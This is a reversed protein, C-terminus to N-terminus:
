KQLIYIVTFVVVALGGAWYTIKAKLKETDSEIKKMRQRSEVIFGGDGLPSVLTDRISHISKSLDKLIANNESGILEMAAVRKDIDRIKISHESQIKRAESLHAHDRAVHVALDHVSKANTIIESQDSM